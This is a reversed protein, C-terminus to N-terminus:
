EMLDEKYLKRIEKIDDTAYQGLSYEFIDLNIKGINKEIYKKYKKYRTKNLIYGELLYPDKDLKVGFIEILMNTPIHSINEYAYIYPDESNKLSLHLYFFYYKQEM